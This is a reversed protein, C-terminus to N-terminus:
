KTSFVLFALSRLCVDYKKDIRGSAIGPSAIPMDNIKKKVKGFL